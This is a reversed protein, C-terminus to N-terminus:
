LKRALGRIVPTLGELHLFDVECIQTAIVQVNATQQLAAISELCFKNIHEHCIPLDGAKVEEIGPFEIPVEIYILGNRRCQNVLRAYTRLPHGV